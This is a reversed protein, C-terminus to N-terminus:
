CNDKLQLLKIDGITIVVLFSVAGGAFNIKSAWSLWQLNFGGNANIYNYTDYISTNFGDNAAGLQLWRWKSLGGGDSTSAPVVM